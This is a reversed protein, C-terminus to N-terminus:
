LGAIEEKYGQLFRKFQESLQLTFPAGTLYICSTVKIKETTGQFDTLCCEVPNKLDIYKHTLKGTNEGDIYLNDNFARFAGYKGYKTKFYEVGARKSLGSITINLENHTNIVIYRKAGLTKFCKYCGEYDWVGLPQTKGDNSKPAIRAGDIEYDFCVKKLDDIIKQNEDEFFKKHKEFNFFKVSDTDAYVYDNKLELIANWLVRRAHATVYIGWQYCLFRSSSDNYNHLVEDVTKQEEVWEGNVLSVDPNDIRTVMCGYLANVYTKYLAYKKESGAVGKLTTKLQYWDLVCEVFPKPLFGRKYCYCYGVQIKNWEYCDKIISYDVETVVVTLEDAAVIRGNDITPNKVSYCKHYSLYHEFSIKSNINFFKIEFICCNEKLLMEFHKSNKVKVRRGNSMPYYSGCIRSPYSSTLDYSHVTYCNDGVHNYNAHTFGGTFARKILDFENPSNIKIKQVTYKYKNDKLVVSKVAKRVKGTSTLPIKHLDGFEKIMQQIFQVVVEVDNVCYQLEKNYIKTKSNRKLEYDLSGVLKHVSTSASLTELSLNSLKYSCRLEIGYDSMIARIPKYKSLAFIESFNFLDKIFQFEYSLNHVYVIVRVNTSLHLTRAMDSCFCKFEQLSRGIFVYGNINFQWIYCYALEQRDNEFSTTEIDFSMPINYYEVTENDKRFKKKYNNLSARETRCFDEIDHWNYVTHSTAYKNFM